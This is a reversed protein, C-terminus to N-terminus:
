RARGDGLRRRCRGIGAFGLDQAGRVAIPYRGANEIRDSQRLGSVLAAKLGVSQIYFSFSDERAGTRLRQKGELRCPAFALGQDIEAAHLDIMAIMAVLEAADLVHEIRTAVYVVSRAEERLQVRPVLGPGHGDRAVVGAGVIVGGLLTIDTPHDGVHDGDAKALPRGVSATEACWLNYGSCSVPWVRATRVYATKTM